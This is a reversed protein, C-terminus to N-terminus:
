ARLLGNFRNFSKAAALWRSFGPTLSIKGFM